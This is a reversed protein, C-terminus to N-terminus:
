CLSSLIYWVCVCVCVCLVFLSFLLWPLDHCAFGSTSNIKLFVSDFITASCVLPSAWCLLFFSASAMNLFYNQKSTIKSENQPFPCFNRSFLFPTSFVFRLSYAWLYFQSSLLSTLFPFPFLSTPYLLQFFLKMSILFPPQKMKDFYSSSRYIKDRCVSFLSGLLSHRQKIHITVHLLPYRQYIFKTLKHGYNM